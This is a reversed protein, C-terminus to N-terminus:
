SLNSARDFREWRSLGFKQPEDFRKAKLEIAIERAAAVNENKVAAEGAVV